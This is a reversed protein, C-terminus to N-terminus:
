PPFNMRRLLDQFRPDSRLPDWTSLVKLQCMAWGHEKYAKELWVLAEDKHGLEAHILAISYPDRTRELRWRLCGEYGSQSYARALAAVEDPRAGSLTMAEQRTTVAEQHKGLRDYMGALAEYPRPDKPDVEITRRFQSAARDDQRALFYISGLALNASVSLPDREVARQAEAVAAPFRGMVSLFWAYEFERRSWVPISPLLGNFNGIRRRGIGATTSRVQPWPTVLRPIPTM